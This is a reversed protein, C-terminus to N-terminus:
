ELDGSYWDMNEAFEELGSFNGTVLTAVVLVVAIAVILVIILSITSDLGKM